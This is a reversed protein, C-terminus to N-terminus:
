FYGHNLVTAQYYRQCKSYDSNSKHMVGSGVWLRGARRQALAM